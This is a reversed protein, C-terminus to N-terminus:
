RAWDEGREISAWDLGLFSEKSPSEEVSSRSLKAPVQPVLNLEVEKEGHIAELMLDLFFTM